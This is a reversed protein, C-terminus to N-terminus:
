ETRIGRARAAKYQRELADGTAVPDGERYLARCVLELAAVKPGARDSKAGLRKAVSPGLALM